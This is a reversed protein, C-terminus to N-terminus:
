GEQGPERAQPEDEPAVEGTEPDHKPASKPKTYKDALDEAASPPAASPEGNRKKEGGMKIKRGDQEPAAPAPTPETQVEGVTDIVEGDTMNMKSGTIMEYVRKLLKRKAKGIVADSGMGANVRVAIRTDSGTGDARKTVDCVIEQRKGQLQWSARYPVLAGKDGVFTPVGPTLVLDTLGPYESVIRAFGNQAAYFRGAIINLENGVPRLGHIMAEIMVDRVTAIPYGGDKDRDTIFGLASGQLPMFVTRVLDDTMVKRLTSIGTALTIAQGLAPMERLAMANCAKLVEEIENTAREIATNKNENAM